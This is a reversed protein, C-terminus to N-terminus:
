SPRSASNKDASHELSLAQPVVAARQAAAHQQRADVVYTSVGVVLGVALAIVALDRLKAWISRKDTM